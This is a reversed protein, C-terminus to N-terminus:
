PQSTTTFSILAFELINSPGFCFATFTFYFTQGPKDLYKKLMGDFDELQITNMTTSMKKMDVDILIETNVLLFAAPAPGTIQSQDFLERVPARL